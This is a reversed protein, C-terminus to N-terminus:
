IGGFMLADRVREEWAMAVDEGRPGPKCHALEHAVLSGYFVRVSPPAEAALGRAFYDRWRALDAAVATPFFMVDCVPGGGGDDIIGTYYADALHGDEPVNAGGSRSDLEIVYLHETLKDWV